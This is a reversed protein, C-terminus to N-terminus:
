KRTLKDRLSSFLPDPVAEAAVPKPERPVRAKTTKKVQYPELSAQLKRDAALKATLQTHRDLLAESAVTLSIWYTGTGYRNWTGVIDADEPIHNIAGHCDKVLGWEATESDELILRVKSKYETSSLDAKPLREEEETEWHREGTTM